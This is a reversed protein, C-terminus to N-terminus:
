FRSRAAREGRVQQLQQAQAARQAMAAKTDKISGTYEDNVWRARRDQGEDTQGQSRTSTLACM